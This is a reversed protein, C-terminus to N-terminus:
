RTYAAICESMRNFEAIIGHNPRFVPLISNRLHITDSSNCFYLVVGMHIDVRGLGDDVCRFLVAIVLTHHLLDVMGIQTPVTGMIMAKM